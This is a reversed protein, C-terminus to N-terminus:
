ALPHMELIGDHANSDKSVIASELHRCAKVHNGKRMSEIILIQKAHQACVCTNDPYPPRHASGACQLGPLCHTQLDTKAVAFLADSEEELLIIYRKCVASEHSITDKRTM